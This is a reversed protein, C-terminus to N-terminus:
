SLHLLARLEEIDYPPSRRHIMAHCNPCVPRLDLIPDVQYEEGIESLQRLHHVHIYGKGVEGYKEEFGFGCVSCSTGFYDICRQRAELNREYANVVIQRTAGERFTTHPEIEEPLLSDIQDVIRLEVLAKALEPYMSWLFGIPHSIGESLYSFWAPDGNAYREPADGLYPSLRRGLRGYFMNMPQFSPYGLAKALQPVTVTRNPFAYQAKLISIELETLDVALIANKFADVSFM